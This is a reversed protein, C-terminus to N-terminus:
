ADLLQNFFTRYRRLALRLDETMAESEGHWQGELEHKRETFTGALSELVEALLHDAGQVADKPDDVFRTQIQLWEVRFREAVEPEFLLVPSEDDDAAPSGVGDDVALPPADVFRDHDHEPVPDTTLDATRSQSDDPVAGNPELQDDALHGNPELQDDALHGNPELQDDALHGNPELQDDALHNDTRQDPNM